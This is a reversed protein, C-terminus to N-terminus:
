ACTGCAIAAWEGAQVATHVTPLILHRVLPLWSLTLMAVRLSGHILLKELLKMARVGHQWNKGGCDNMREFIVGLVVELYGPLASAV